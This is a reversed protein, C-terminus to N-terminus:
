AGRRTSYDILTYEYRFQEDGTAGNSLDYVTYEYRVILKSTAIGDAGTKFMLGPDTFHIIHAPGPETESLRLLVPMCKVAFADGELAYDGWIKNKPPDEAKPETELALSPIPTGGVDVDYIFDKFYDGVPLYRYANSPEHATASMSFLGSDARAYNEVPNAVNFSASGGPVLSKYARLLYFLQENDFKAGPKIPIDKKVPHSKTADADKKQTFEIQGALKDYDVALTYSNNYDKGDADKRTAFEATKQSNVPAMTVTSFTVTSSVKDAKGANEAAAANDLWEILLTSDVTAVANKGTGSANLTQCFRSDETTLLGGDTWKGDVKARAYVKVSYECREYAYTAFMGWPKESSFPTAAAGGACAALSFLLAICIATITLKKIM